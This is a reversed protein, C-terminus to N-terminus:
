LDEINATPVSVLWLSLYPSLCNMKLDNRQM